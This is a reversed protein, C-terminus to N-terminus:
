CVWHNLFCFVRLCASVYVLLGKLILIWSKWMVRLHLALGAILVLRQNQRGLRDSLTFNKVVLRQMRRSKLNQEVFSYLDGREALCGPRGRNKIVLQFLYSWVSFQSHRGCMNGDKPWYQVNFFKHLHFSYSSTNYFLNQCNQYVTWLMAYFLELKLLFSTTSTHKHLLCERTYIICLVTTRVFSLLLTRPCHSQSFLNRLM